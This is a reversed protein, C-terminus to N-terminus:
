DLKSICDLLLSCLLFYSLPSFSRALAGPSSLGPTACPRGVNPVQLTLGTPQADQSRPSTPLIRPSSATFPSDCAAPQGQGIRPVQPPSTRARGHLREKRVTSNSVPFEESATSSPCVHLPSPPGRQGIAGQQSLPITSLQKGGEARLLSGARQGLPPCARSHM